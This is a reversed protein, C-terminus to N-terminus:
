YIAGNAAPLVGTCEIEVEDQPLWKGVEVM